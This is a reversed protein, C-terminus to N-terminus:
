KKKACQDCAKGDKACQERAKADKPCQECKKADKTSQDCCAPKAPEAKTAAAYGAGAVLASATALALLLRFSKM